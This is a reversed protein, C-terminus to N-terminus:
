VPMWHKAARWRATVQKRYDHWRNPIISYGVLYPGWAAAAITWGDAVLDAVANVVAAEGGPIEAAIDVLPLFAPAPPISALILTHATMM